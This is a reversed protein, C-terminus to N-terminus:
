YFLCVRSSHSSSSDLVFNLKQKTNSVCWYSTSIPTKNNKKREKSATHRRGYVCACECPANTLICSYLGHIFSISLYIRSYLICPSTCSYPYLTNSHSKDQRIMHLIRHIRFYHNANRMDIPSPLKINNNVVFNIVNAHPVKKKKTKKMENWKLNFIFHFIMNPVILHTFLYKCTEFM